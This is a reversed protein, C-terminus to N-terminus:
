SVAWSKDLTPNENIIGYCIVDNLNTSKFTSVLLSEPAEKPWQRM